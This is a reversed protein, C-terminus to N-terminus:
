EMLLPLTIKREEFVEKPMSGMRMDRSMSKIFNSIMNWCCKLLGDKKTQPTPTSHSTSQPTTGYLREYYNPGKGHTSGLIPVANGAVLADFVGEVLVLDSNWDIFLENFM